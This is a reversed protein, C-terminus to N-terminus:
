RSTPAFPEVPFGRKPRRRTLRWVVGMVIVGVLLLLWWPLFLNLDGNLNEMAPRRFYDVAHPRVFRGCFWDWKPYRWYPDHFILIFCDPFAMLTVPPTVM